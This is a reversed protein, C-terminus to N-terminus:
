LRDHNDLAIAAARDDAFRKLKALDIQGGIQIDLGLLTRGAKMDLAKVIFRHGSGDRAKMLGSPLHAQM